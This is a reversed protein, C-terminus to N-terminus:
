DRKKGRGTMTDVLGEQLNLWLYNFFSKDQKREVEFNGHRFGDEDTKNGDKTFLNVVATLVKNVGLRNKKLVTFEFNDYKMKMDGQSELENGSITFYLQQMTGQVEAGLNSKLFPNISKSQFQSLEGKVLFTNAKSQPDFSWDLQFPGNDMLKATINARVEGTGKSHLNRITADIENFTLDKPAIDPKIREEYAIMGESITVSDVQLELPLDRLAQNYLKKHSTDDPLLKDRYVYFMPQQLQLEGLHFYPEGKTTGAEWDNLLVNAIGLDYHDHEQAVQRSLEAKSYRSRLAFQEFAGDDPNLSMRGFTIAELDSLDSYGNRATIQYTGYDVPFSSNSEETPYTLDSINIAMDELRASRQNTTDKMLFSGNEVILKEITISPSSSKTESASSSDQKKPHYSIAPSQIHVKSFIVDEKQLLAWYHLGRVQLTEVAVKWQRDPTRASVQTLRINGLFVNTHLGEYQLQYPQAAESQLLSTVKQDFFWQAAVSASIILLLIGIGLYRARKSQPM